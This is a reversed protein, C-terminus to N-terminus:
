DAIAKRARNLLALADSKTPGGRKMSHALELAPICDIILVAYSETQSMANRAYQDAAEKSRKLNEMHASIMRGVGDPKDPFRARDELVRLLTRALVALDDDPDASSRELVANALKVAQDYEDM